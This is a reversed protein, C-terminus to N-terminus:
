LIVPLGSGSVDVGSYGHAALYLRMPDEYRNFNLSPGFRISALPLKGDRPKLNIFPVVYGGASRFRFLSEESLKKEPPDRRFDLRAVLRWEREDVFAPDKYRVIEDMLLEEVLVVVENALHVDTVVTEGFEADIARIADRLVRRIRQTQLQKMYIVKALRLNFPGVSEMSTNMSGHFGLAYGGKQGYARWQSLLNGSECFCAVYINMSRSLRAHPHLFLSKLATLVHAAFRNSDKNPEIWYPLEELLLRCGYEIESSDNLFYAASAWLSNNEIIGKLGAIDTYHYLREPAPWFPSPMEMPWEVIGLEPEIEGVEIENLKM